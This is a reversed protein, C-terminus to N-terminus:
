NQDVIIKKCNTNNGDFVHVFYIGNSINELEIRKTLAQMFQEAFILQGYLNFIEIRGLHVVSNMQINFSGSSPNPFIFFSTGKEPEVQGLTTCLTSMIGGSSTLPLPTAAPTIATSQLVPAIFNNTFASNVSFPINLVNCGSNGLSDTKIIYTSNGSSGVVIYGDDTTEHALYAIENSATGYYRTWLTDGISNTKILFLDSISINGNGGAMLFGNDNTQILLQVYTNQASDYQKQWIPNGLSDTKILFVWNSTSPNQGTILYGGDDTQITERAKGDDYRKSWVVIGNSELKILLIKPPIGGPDQYGGSVIFGGDTTRNISFLELLDTHQYLKKWVVNGFKDIKIAYSDLIGFSLTTSSTGIFVVGSDITSIADQGYANGWAHMRKVWILNGISDTHLFYADSYSQLFVTGSIFLKGDIGECISTPACVWNGYNFKKTWLTDGSVNIKILNFGYEGSTYSAGVFVYNGDSTYCGARATAGSATTILKQFTLQAASFNIAVVFLVSTVIYKM